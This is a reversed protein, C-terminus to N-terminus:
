DKVDRSCFGLAAVVTEELLGHIRTKDAWPHIHPLVDTLEKGRHKSQTKRFLIYPMSHASLTM